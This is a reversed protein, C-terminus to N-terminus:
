NSVIDVNTIEVAKADKNDKSDTDTKDQEGELEATVGLDITEDYLEVIEASKTKSRGNEGDMTESMVELKTERM